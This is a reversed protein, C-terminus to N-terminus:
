ESRFQNGFGSELRNILDHAESLIQSIKKGNKQQSAWAGIADVQSILTELKTTRDNRIRDLEWVAKTITM